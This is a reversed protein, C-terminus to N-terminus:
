YSLLMSEIIDSRSIHKRTESSFAPISFFLNKISVTTDAKIAVYTDSFTFGTCSIGINLQILDQTRALKKEKDTLLLFIRLYDQYSLFLPNNEYTVTKNNNLAGSIDTKWQEKTKFLAIKEGKSLQDQDYLAEFMGWSFILMTQLLPTSLGANWSSLAAALGTIRSIKSPDSYIHIINAVLRLSLIEAKILMSNVAEDKNGNIIYEVEYASFYGDREYKDESKLNYAKAEEEKKLLPVDHRFIGMIYENLYLQETVNMAIDTLSSEKAAIYELETEAGNASNFDNANWSSNDEFYRNKRSPLLELLDPAITKLENKPNFAQALESAVKDRIDEDDSAAPNAKNFTYGITDNISLRDIASLFEEENGTANLATQCSEVNSRLKAIITESNDESLMTKMDTLSGKYSKLIEEIGEIGEEAYTLENEILSFLEGKQIIVSNAEEAAESNITKFFNLSSKMSEWISQNESSLNSLKQSIDSIQQLLNKQTKVDKEKSYLVQLKNIEDSLEKQLSNNDLIKKKFDKLKVAIESNSIKKIKSELAMQLSGVAGAKKDTVIKRKYLKSGKSLNKIGGIKSLLDSAIEAPARYKMYDMIQNEFVEQKELSFPKELNIREINYGYLFNESGINLNKSFYEEFCESLTDNDLFIGFLGYEQKLENNYSALVSSIAMQNARQVQSHALKIRSADTFTGAVLFVSSLVISIFVTISGRFRNDNLRKSKQKLM